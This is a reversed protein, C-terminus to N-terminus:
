EDHTDKSFQGNPRPSIILTITIGRNPETQEIKLDSRYKTEQNIKASSIRMRQIGYGTQLPIIGYGTDIVQLITKNDQKTIIIRITINKDELIGSHMIANSIASTAIRICAGRIEIPYSLDPQCNISIPLQEQYKKECRKSWTKVIFDISDKIYEMELYQSYVGTHITKLEYLTTEARKIIQPLNSEIEKIENKALWDRINQLQLVVSSQYLGVLDHLDDRLGDRELQRITEYHGTIELALGIQTSLMNLNKQDTEDFNALKGFRLKNELTIVGIVEENTNHVPTLLVSYSKGSRIYNLHDKEKAWAPHEDHESNKIIIPQDM